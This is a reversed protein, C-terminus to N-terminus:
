NYSENGLDELSSILSRASTAWTFRAVRARGREIMIKRLATNSGLSNIQSAISKPDSPDCYLAADGCIEPLCTADSVIVPCGFAMADLPPLGFGEAYSPFCFALANAYLREIDVEAVFGLLRVRAVLGVEKVYSEVDFFKHDVSGGIVLVIEPDVYEFAAILNKINKRANLRGLYFVYKEDRSASSLSNFTPERAGHYVVKVRDSEQIGYQVIRNKEENSITVVGRAVKALWVMPRYYILEFFSYYQPFDLFLIDHLYVVTKSAHQISGYNQCLVLDLHHRDIEKSLFFANSIFNSGPGSVGIVEFRDGFLNSARAVDRQYVVLCFEHGCEEIQDMLADILGVVVSRGSPPGDFYWKADIGIKM